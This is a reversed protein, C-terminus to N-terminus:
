DRRNIETLREKIFDIPFVPSPDVNDLHLTVQAGSIRNNKFDEVVIVGITETTKQCSIFTTCILLVATGILAPKLIRNLM